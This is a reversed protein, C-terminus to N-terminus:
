PNAPTFTMTLNATYVGPPADTINELGDWRLGWTGYMPGVATEDGSMLPYTTQNTYDPGTGGFRVKQGYAGAGTVPGLHGYTGPVSTPSDYCGFPGCGYVLHQPQGNYTIVTLYFHNPASIVNGEASTFDTVTANVTWGGACDSVDMNLRAGETTGTNGVWAGPGTKLPNATDWTPNQSVSLALTTPDDVCATDMVTISTEIQQAAASAGILILSTGMLGVLAM